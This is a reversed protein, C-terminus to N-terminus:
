YEYAEAYNTGDGIFKSDAGNASFTLDIRTWDNPNVTFEVTTWGEEETYFKNWAHYIDDPAVYGFIIKTPVGQSRLMCATLCAYDFCIGKGDDLTLDPDPLYGPAVNAAKVDDYTVSKCVYDYVQKVFDQTSTANEAFERAKIVCTSEETYDAYQNPRLFPDFPDEIVVEEETKYLEAYKNDVINEMVKFEYFGDGSQLPFIQDEGNVVSYTYTVDDKIVQFKIKSDTEVHLAVYGEDCSSTDVMAEDNGTAEEEVFEADRFEPIEYSGEEEAAPEAETKEAKKGGSSGFGKKPAASASDTCASLSFLVGVILCAIILQKIFNRLKEGKKM